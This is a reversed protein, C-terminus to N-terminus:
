VLAPLDVSRLLRVLAWTSASSLSKAVRSGVVLLSVRGAPLSTSTDSVTPNMEFSGVCSTAAKLAVSSSTASAATSSCMTSTELGMATASASATRSTSRPISTSCMGTMVTQFLISAAEVGSMRRWTADSRFSVKQMLACVPSPTCSSRTPRSSRMRLIITSTSTSIGYAAPWRSSSTCRIPDTRWSSKVSLPVRTRANMGTAKAFRM